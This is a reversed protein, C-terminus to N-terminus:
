RELGICPMVATIGYGRYGCKYTNSKCYHHSLPIFCSVIPSGKKSRNNNEVICESYEPRSETFQHILISVLLQSILDPLYRHRHMINFTGLFAKHALHSKLVLYVEMNSNVSRQCYLAAMINGM